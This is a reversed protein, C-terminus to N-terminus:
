SFRESGYPLSEVLYKSDALGWLRELSTFKNANNSLELNLHHLIVVHMEPGLLPYM